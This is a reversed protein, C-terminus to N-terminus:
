DEISWWNGENDELTTSNIIKFPSYDKADGTNVTILNDGIECTGTFAPPYYIVLSYATNSTFIISHGEIGEGDGAYAKNLTVGANDDGYAVSSFGILVVITIIWINRIFGITNKM